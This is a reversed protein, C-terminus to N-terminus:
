LLIQKKNKVVPKIDNTKSKFIINSLINLGWAQALTIEPLNFIKPMLWDWLLMTPITLIISSISLLFLMGYLTTITTCILKILKKITNM